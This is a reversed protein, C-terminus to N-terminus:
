WIQDFLPPWNSKEIWCRSPLSWTDSSPLESIRALITPWGFWIWYIADAEQVRLAGVRISICQLYDQNRTSRQKKLMWRSSKHLILELHYPSCKWQISNWVPKRNSNAVEWCDLHPHQKNKSSCGWRDAFGKAYRNPSYSPYRQQCAEVLFHPKLLSCICSPLFKVHGLPHFRITLKMLLFKRTKKKKLSTIYILLYKALNIRFYERCIISVLYTENLVWLSLVQSKTNALTAAINQAKQSKILDREKYFGAFIM